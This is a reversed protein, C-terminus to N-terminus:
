DSFHEQSIHKRWLYFLFSCKHRTKPVKHLENLDRLFGFLCISNNNKNWLPFFRPWLPDTVQMFNWLQPPSSAAAVPSTVKRVMEDRLPHKSLWTWQTQSKQLGISQLGGPEKPRPSRWALISSHTVMGKELPDERGLSWVQNVQMALLIKVTQAVLSIVPSM